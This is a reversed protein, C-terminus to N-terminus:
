RAVGFSYLMGDWTGIYARGNAVRSAASTIGRNSKTGSSWLERGTM